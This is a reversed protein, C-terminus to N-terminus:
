GIMEFSPGYGCSHLTFIMDILCLASIVHMKAAVNNGSELEHKAQLLEERALSLKKKVSENM